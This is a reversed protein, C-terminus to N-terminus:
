VQGRFIVHLVEAPELIYRWLVLSFKWVAGAPIIMHFRWILVRYMNPWVSLSLSLRCRGSCCIQSTSACNWLTKTLYYVVLYCCCISLIIFFIGLILSTVTIFITTINKLFFGIFPNVLFFEKVLCTSERFTQLM